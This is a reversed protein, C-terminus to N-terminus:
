NYYKFIMFLIFIYPMLLIFGIMFIFDIMSGSDLITFIGLFYYILVIYVFFGFLLVPEKLKFVRRPELRDRLNNVTINFAKANKFSFIKDDLETEEIWKIYIHKLEVLTEDFRKIQERHQKLVSFVITGGMALTFFIGALSLQNGSILDFKLPKNQTSPMFIGILDSQNLINILLYLLAMSFMILCVNAFNYLIANGLGKIRLLNIKTDSSKLWIIIIPLSIIFTPFIFILFLFFLGTIKFSLTLLISSVIFVFKFITYIFPIWENNRTNFFALEENPYNLYTLINELIKNQQTSKSNLLKSHM